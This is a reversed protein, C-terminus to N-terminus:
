YCAAIRVFEEKFKEIKIQQSALCDEKWKGKAKKTKWDEKKGEKKKVNIDEVEEMQYGDSSYDSIKNDEILNLINCTSDQVM